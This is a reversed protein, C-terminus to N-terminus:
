VGHPLYLWHELRGERTMTEPSNQEENFLVIEGEVDWGFAAAYRAFGDIGEQAGTVDSPKNNGKVETLYVTEAERDFVAVDMDGLMQPPSEPIHPSLEEEAYQEIVTEDIREPYTSFHFYPFEKVVSFRRDEDGYGFLRLVEDRTVDMDYGDSYLSRLDNETLTHAEEFMDQQSPYLDDVIQTHISGGRDMSVTFADEGAFQLGGHYRGSSPTEADRPEVGLEAVAM